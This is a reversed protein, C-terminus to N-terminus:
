PIARVVPLIAGFSTDITSVGGHILLVPAGAGHVEYYMRLPGISAYGSRPAAGPSQPSSTQEAPRSDGGICGALVVLAMFISAMVRKM